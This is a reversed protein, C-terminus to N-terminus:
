KVSEQEKRKKDYLATLADEPTADPYKKLYDAHFEELEALSVAVPAIREGGNKYQEWLHPPLMIRAMFPKVVEYAVMQIHMLCGIVYFPFMVVQVCVAQIMAWM